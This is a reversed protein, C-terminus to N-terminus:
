LRRSPRKSKYNDYDIGKLIETTVEGSALMKAEGAVRRDSDGCMQQVVSPLTASNRLVQLRVGTVQDKSLVGLDSDSETYLALFWRVRDDSHKLCTDRLTQFSNCRKVVAKLVNKNVKKDEILHILIVETTASNHAVLERIISSKSQAFSALLEVPVNQKSALTKRSDFPLGNIWDILEPTVQTQSTISQIRQMDSLSIEKKMGSEEVDVRM